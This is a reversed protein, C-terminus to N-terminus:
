PKTRSWIRARLAAAEPSLPRDMFLRARSEASPFVTQDTKDDDVFDTALTNPNVAGTWDTINSIIEPRLVFDIFARAEEVHVAGAPIALVDIWMRTRERPIVYTLEVGNGRDEAKTRADTVDDSAGFGICASGSALAEVFEDAPLRRVLPKLRALLDGAREVDRPVLSLPDLGLWAQAAPLVSDPLDEVVVGCGVRAVLAPDFALALSDTPADPLAARLRALDLGLGATGWLYPVALQNDPDWVALKALIDRDLNGYNALRDRGVPQFLHRTAAQALVPVASTVVLDWGPKDGEALAGVLEGDSQYVDYTVAIGTEAEFKQVTDDAIFEPRNAFHLARPQSSAAGGAMAVVVALAAVSGIRRM